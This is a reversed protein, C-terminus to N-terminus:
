GFRVARSRSVARLGGRREDVRGGEEGQVMPRIPAEWLAIRTRRFRYSSARM